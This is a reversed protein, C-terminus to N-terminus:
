GRPDPVILRHETSPHRSFVFQKEYIQALVDDSMLAQGGGSFVLRGGKLAILRDSYMAACNIDHTVAVITLGLTRNLRELLAYIEEENKPDLFTTPEDLLLVPWEGKVDRVWIVEALKITLM